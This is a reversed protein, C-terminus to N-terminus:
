SARLYNRRRETAPDGSRRSPAAPLSVLRTWAHRVLVEVIHWQTRTLHVPEDDRGVGEQAVLDLVFDPTTVIGNGKPSCRVGCRPM